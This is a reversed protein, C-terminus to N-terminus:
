VKSQIVALACPISDAPVDAVTPNIDPNSFMRELMWNDHEADGRVDMKWFWALTAKARSPKQPNIVAMSVKIDEKKLIRYKSLVEVDASLWVLAGCAKGYVCVHHRVNGEL